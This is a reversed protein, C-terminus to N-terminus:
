DIIFKKSQVGTGATLRIVYMGKIMGSSDFNIQHNGSASFGKYLDAVKQGNLNYVEINVTSALPLSYTVLDDTGSGNLYHLSLASPQGTPEDLKLSAAENQTISANTSYVPELIWQQRSGGGYTWMQVNVDNAPTTSCDLGYTANARVTIKYAGGGVDTLLWQQRTNGVYNWLQVNTGNIPTASCDLVYNNNLRSAIKVYGDGVNDIRWQQSTGSNNYMELNVGNSLTTSAASLCFLPNNVVKIKYYTVKANYVVRADNQIDIVWDILKQRLVGNRQDATTVNNVATANLRDQLQQFYLSRPTTIRTGWSQWYGNGIQQPAICGVGYNRATPPSDVTMEEPTTECNYFMVQAGVWGHGPDGPGSGGSSGRNHVRLMFGYLNDLLLGTAWRSHPGMDSTANYSVGDVYASPGPVRSGAVFDHRDGWTACRQYLVGSAENELGFSYKRGGTTVSKPDVMADEVTIYRSWDGCNVAGNGFYKAVIGKVWCNESREVQVAHWGHNEDTDSAYYSELRMNEIGSKKIRGGSLNHKYVVTTAYQSEIPMVTPADITISNSTVSLIKREFHMIIDNPTWWVDDMNITNIWTQNPSQRIVVEDGAQFSHTGVSLTKSGTGLFTNTVPVYTTGTPNGKGTGPGDLFIFDHQQALTAILVTGHVTNGEGKLVVGSARIYLSGSVNYIGAKLLVTGRFGNADLPLASVRDIADQIRARSDASSISYLIEKVPPSAPLAVGGGMYGAYSYDPIRNAANSQGQNAYNNYAL